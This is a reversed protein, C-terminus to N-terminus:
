KLYGWKKLKPYDQAWRDSIDTRYIANPITIQEVVSYAAKKATAMTRGWGNIILLFGYGASYYIGNKQRVHALRVAAENKKSIGFIPLGRGYRNYSIEYPIGAGGMVVGVAFGPKTKFKKLKGAALEYLLEGWPALHLAQQIDLQPYGFRSTFELAFAGKDTIICNIDIFGRYNTRALFPKMKLLTERFLKGGDASYFMSTGMEGTLPGLDGTLFRKHEFTVNVPYVFDAGNFFAGAAMEVGSAYEQLVFDIKKGRPWALAYHKLMEIVDEGKENRGVYSLYRRFPDSVKVVFRKKQKNVFNAATQFNKFRWAPPMKIGAQSMIKQGFERDDEVRDGFGNGGVVLFGSARLRDADKGFGLDDIVVVDAWRLHNQWNQVHPIIGQGVDRYRGDRIFCKVKHGEAMLTQMLSTSESFITLFLFKM